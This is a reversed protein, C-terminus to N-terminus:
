LIKYSSDLFPKHTPFRSRQLSLRWSTCHSPHPHGGPPSRQCTFLRVKFHRDLSNLTKPNSDQGDELYDRFEVFHVPHRPTVGRKRANKLIDICRNMTM